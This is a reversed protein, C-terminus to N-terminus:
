GREMGRKILSLICDKKKEVGHKLMYEEIKKNLEDDLIVPFIRAM